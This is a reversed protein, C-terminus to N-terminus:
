PPPTRWRDPLCSYGCVRGCSPDQLYRVPAGDPCVRPAFLRPRSDVSACGAGAIALALLCARM